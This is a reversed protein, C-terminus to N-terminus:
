PKVADMYQKLARRTMPSLPIFRGERKAKVYDRKIDLVEAPEDGHFADRVKLKLVEGIRLGTTGQVTWITKERLNTPFSFYVETAALIRMFEEPTFPRKGIAM